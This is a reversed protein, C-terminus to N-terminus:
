AGAQELLWRVADAASRVERGDATTERRDRLALKIRHMTEMHRLDKIFMNIHDERYGPVSEGLPVKILVTEIRRQLVAVPKPPQTEVPPAPPAPTEAPPTPPEPTPPTSTHVDEQDPEKRIRPM